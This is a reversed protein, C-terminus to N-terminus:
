RYDVKKFSSKKVDLDSSQPLMFSSYFTSTLLPLTARELVDKLSMYFCEKLLEDMDPLKLSTSM